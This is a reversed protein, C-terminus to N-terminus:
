TGDKCCIEKKLREKDVKGTPSVPLKEVFVFEKPVKVAALRGRCWRKLEEKYNYLKYDPESCVVACIIEGYEEDPIGVVAADAVAEHERLVEEVEGPCINEGGRIIIDKYRGAMSLFGDEGMSGMDGTHLWGDSDIMKATAAVNNYYGKMIGYGKVCIEGLSGHKLVEGTVPNCIRCTVGPMIRGVTSCIKELMDSPSTTSVAPGSETMGYMIVTSEVGLVNKLGEVTQRSCAAGATVCERLGMERLSKGTRKGYRILRVFITSVSCLVTCREEHLVSLLTETDSRGHFILRGRGLLVTMICSISGLIHFMPAALCFRDDEKLELRQAIGWANEILQFHTLLVGKPIGGTGSTHLVVADDLPSVTKMREALSGGEMRSGAELLRFFSWAYSLATDKAEDRSGAQPTGANGGDVVIMQRLLPLKKCSIQGRGATSLEPCIDSLLEMSKGNGSEHGLVVAKVDANRLLVEVVNGTEHINLNVIVCGAKEIAIKVIISEWCNDLLVAIHDGKEMGLAILSKAFSDSYEKIGRYTLRCNARCDVFAEREPQWLAQIDSLEGFTLGIYRRIGVQLERGKYCISAEEVGSVEPQVRCMDSLVRQLEEEPPCGYLMGLYQGGADYMCVDATGTISIEIRRRSRIMERMLEAM